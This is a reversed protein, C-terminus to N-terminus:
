FSLPTQIAAAFVRERYQRLREDFFEEVGETPQSFGFRMGDLMPIWEDAMPEIMVGFFIAAYLDVATLSDGILFERGKTHQRLLTDSFLRLIQGSRDISAALSEDSYGYKDALRQLVPAVTPGGSAAISQLRRCWGFGMEGAIERILGFMRLREEADDPILKPQPALREALWIFSEYHTRIPEDNYAIVPASTQGTWDRLEPNDGGVKQAVPIYDIKKYNLVAKIAEGWVGPTGACLVLRLGDRQRADEVSLYDM